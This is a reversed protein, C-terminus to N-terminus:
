VETWAVSILDSSSDPKLLNFSLNNYPIERSDDEGPDILQARAMTFTGVTYNTGGTGTGNHLGKIALVIATELEASDRNYGQYTDDVEEIACSLVASEVGASRLISPRTSANYELAQKYKVALNFSKFETNTGGLSITSGPFIMELLGERDNPLTQATTFTSNGVEDKGAVDLTLSVSDGSGALTWGFVRMGLHRKNAINPGRAFECTKSPRDLSNMSMCWAILYEAISTTISPSGPVWGYLPCTIQGSVMGRTKQGHKPQTLGVMPRALKKEWRMKPTYTEVPTHVYVPSGDKTGWTAESSLALYNKEGVYTTM